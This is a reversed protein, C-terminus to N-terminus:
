WICRSACAVLHDRHKLQTVCGYICEMDLGLQKGWVFMKLCKSCLPPTKRASLVTKYETKLEGISVPGIKYDILVGVLPKHEVHPVPAIVDM